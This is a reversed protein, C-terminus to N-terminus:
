LGVHVRLQRTDSARVVVRLCRIFVIVLYRGVVGSSRPKLLEQQNDVYIQLLSRRDEACEVGLFEFLQPPLNHRATICTMASGPLLVCRLLHLLVNELKRKRDEVVSSSTSLM